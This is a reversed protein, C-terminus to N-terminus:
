KRKATSALSIKITKLEFEENMEKQLDKRPIKQSTKHVSLTVCDWTSITPNFFTLANIWM